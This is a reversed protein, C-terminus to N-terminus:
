GEMHPRSDDKLVSKSQYGFGSAGAALVTPVSVAHSPWTASLQKGVICPSFHFASASSACYGKLWRAGTAAQIVDTQPFLPLTNNTTTNTLPSLKITAISPYRYNLGLSPHHPKPTPSIKRKKKSASTVQGKHWSSATRCMRVTFLVIAHQEKWLSTLHLLVPM